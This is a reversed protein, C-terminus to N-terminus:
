ERARARAGRRRRRALQLERRFAAFGDAAGERRSWEEITSMRVRNRLAVLVASRLSQRDNWHYFAALRDRCCDTASLALMRQGGRRIEVPRISLDGGIALPGPPFEVYFRATTHEYRDGHRSFGVKQMADDLERRTVQTELILDIDKSHHAGRTYLNVCAGGTLVARIREARLGSGVTATM